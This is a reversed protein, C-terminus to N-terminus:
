FEFGVRAGLDWTSLNMPLQSGASPHFALRGDAVFGRYRWAVGAGLPFEVVNSSDTFDSTNTVANQIGYHTWGVGAVAYPQWMGTLFNFRFDGELGNGILHTNSATGLANITQASGIYALEGGFHSRSGASVRANWLGAETTETTARSDLFGGVGGGIEATMGIGTLIAGRGDDGVPAPAMPNPNPVPVYDPAPPPPVAPEQAGAAVGVLAAALAGITAYSKM